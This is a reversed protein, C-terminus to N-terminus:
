IASPIGGISARPKLNDGRLGKARSDDQGGMAWNRLSMELSILHHFVDPASEVPRFVQVINVDVKPGACITQPAPVRTASFGRELEIVYSIRILPDVHINHAGKRGRFVSVLIENGEEIL